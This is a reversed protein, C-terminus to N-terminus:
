RISHLMIVDVARLDHIYFQVYACKLQIKIFIFQMHQVHFVTRSYNLVTHAIHMLTCQVNQMNQMNQTAKCNM